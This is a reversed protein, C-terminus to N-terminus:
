WQFDNRIWELRKEKLKILEQLNALEREMKFNGYIRIKDQLAKEEEYLKELRYQIVEIEHKKDM